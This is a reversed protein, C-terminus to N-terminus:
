NSTLTTIDSNSCYCPMVYYLKSPNKHKSAVFTGKLDFYFTRIQFFAEYGYGYTEFCGFISEFDYGIFEFTLLGKRFQLRFIRNALFVKMVLVM